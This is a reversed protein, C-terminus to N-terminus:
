YADAAGTTDAAAPAPPTAPVPAGADTSGAPPSAPSRGPADYARHITGVHHITPPVHTHWSGLWQVYAIIALGKANPTVGDDEFFWPYSPMVSWPVVDPPNYFHAVHWDNSHVGAQRVLDPGVRRTGWLPPMNLVNHYEEPYSKRGFRAEDNGWPRIQQSHCHWCAEGIYVKHGLALARALTEQDSGTGFAKEFAQPYQERLEVFDPPVKEVIQEITQVELDQVPLMPLWGSVVFSLIFFGIGATLFVFSFREM